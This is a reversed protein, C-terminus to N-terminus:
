YITESFTLQQSLVMTNVHTISQVREVEKNLLGMLGTKVLWLQLCHEYKVRSPHAVKLM